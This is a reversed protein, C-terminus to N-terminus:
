SPSKGGRAYSRGLAQFTEAGKVAERPTSTILLPSAQDYDWSKMEPLNYGSPQRQARTAFIYFLFSSPNNTKSVDIDRWFM